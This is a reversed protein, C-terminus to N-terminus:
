AKKLYKSPGLPLSCGVSLVPGVDTLSSSLLAHAESGTRSSKAACRQGRNMGLNTVSSHLKM